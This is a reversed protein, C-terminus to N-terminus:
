SQKMGAVPRGPSESNIEIAVTGDPRQSGILALFPLLRERSPGQIDITVGMRLGKSFTFEGRGDLRLQGQM